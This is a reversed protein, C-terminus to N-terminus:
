LYYLKINVKKVPLKSEVKSLAAKAATAKKSVQINKAKQIAALKPKHLISKTNNMVNPKNSKTIESKRKLLEPQIHPLVGGSAITVGKM